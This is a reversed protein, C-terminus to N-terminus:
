AKDSKPPTTQETFFASLPVDLATALKHLSALTPMKKYSLVNHVYTSSLGVRDQIDRFTVGKEARLRSIRDLVDTIEKPVKQGAPGQTGEEDQGV